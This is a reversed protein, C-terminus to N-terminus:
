VYELDDIKVKGVMMTETDGWQDIWAQVKKQGDLYVKDKYYVAGEDIFWTKQIWKKVRLVDSFASRLTVNKLGMVVSSIGAFDKNAVLSLYYYRLFRWKREYWEPLHKLSEVVALWEEDAIFNATWQRLIHRWTKSWNIYRRVHVDVEHALTAKLDKERISIGQMIKITINKASRVVTLRSTTNSDFYVHVWSYWQQKLYSLIYERIELSKLRRWLKIDDNSHDFVMRKSERTYEDDLPWFLKQNALLIDSYKQKKYAVLLEHKHLLETAKDMFLKAFPSQVGSSYDFYTDRLRNLQKYISHLKKDSPRNYEFVPNYHGNRTIFNDLEELYNTPKLIRSLNLSKSIKFLKEDLIHLKDIEHEILNKNSIVHETTFIKKVPKLYYEQALDRWLVITNDETKKSTKFSFDHFTIHNDQLELTYPVIKSWLFDKVQQGIVTRQRKIDVDVIVDMSKKTGDETKKKLKGHQSLYIIKSTSIVQWKDETFLTKAIEVWKEPDNVKMDKIKDLRNRLPLVAALQFKLWARANIELLKPGEDTIVRDLALYWLNAFYQVKSSYSLIDNRYSLKQWEMDKYEGPFWNKHIKGHQFMSQIKGTSVNIWLWIGWRDLNAKGDSEETPVRLMAAVPILNFVIVRVDALWKQCFKEFWSWAVILEELLVNDSWRWMSNKGDLVDVLYRRLTQDPIVESWVKYWQDAFPSQKTFLSDFLSNNWILHADTPTQIPKIRYIWRWRSGNCPKAIVEDVPLSSFDYAYLDSRNTILDFTKPVPIWRESLFNKSKNKDNALRIAKTPNFKKIYQLNRANMGLIWFNLM